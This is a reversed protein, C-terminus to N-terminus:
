PIATVFRFANNFRIEGSPRRQKEYVPMLVAKVADEGVM